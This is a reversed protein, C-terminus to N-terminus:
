ILALIFVQQPYRLGRPLATVLRNPEKGLDDFGFATTAPQTSGPKPSLLFTYPM